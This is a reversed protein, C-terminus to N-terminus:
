MGAFVTSHIVFTNNLTSIFKSSYYLIFSIEHWANRQLYASKKMKTKKIGHEMKKLWKPESNRRITILYLLM